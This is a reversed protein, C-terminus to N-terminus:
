AREEIEVARILRSRIQETAEAYRHELGRERLVPGRFSDTVRLRVCSRGDADTGHTLEVRTPLGRLDHKGEHSPGPWSFQGIPFFITFDNIGGLRTKSEGGGLLVVAADTSDPAPRLGSGFLMDGLAGLDPERTVPVEREFAIRQGWRRRVRGQKPGPRKFGHELLNTVAAWLVLAVIITPVTVVLFWLVPPLGFTWDM